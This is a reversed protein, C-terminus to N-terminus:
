RGTKEELTDKRIANVHLEYSIRGCPGGEEQLIDFYELFGKFRIASCFDTSLCPFLTEFTVDRLGHPWLKKSKKCLSLMFCPQSFLIPFSESVLNVIALM